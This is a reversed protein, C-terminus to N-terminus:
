SQSGLPVYYEGSIELETWAYDHETQKSNAALRGSSPAPSLTLHATSWRNGGYGLGGVGGVVDYKERNISSTIPVFGACIYLCM